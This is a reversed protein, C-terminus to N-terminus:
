YTDNELITNIIDIRSQVDCIAFWYEGYISHEPKFAYLETLQDIHIFCDIDAIIACFGSHSASGQNIWYLACRIDRYIDFRQEVTLSSYCRSRNTM